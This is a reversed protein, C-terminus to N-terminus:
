LRPIIPVNQTSKGLKKKLFDQVINALHPPASDQIFISSNSNMICNVEPLFEKELLKKYTESNVKIGKDSVFFLNTAGEVNCLCFGNGKKLQRNTHHFLCNDQINDKKKLDM